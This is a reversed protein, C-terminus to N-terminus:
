LWLAVGQFFNKFLPTRQDFISSFCSKHFGGRQVKWHVDIFTSIVLEISMLKLLSRSVTFSLPTQDAATWPTAFLRVCNLSKVVVFVHQIAIHSFIPM